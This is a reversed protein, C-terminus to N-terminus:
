KKVRSLYTITAVTSPVAAAKGHRLWKSVTLMTVFPVALVYALVAGGTLAVATLTHATSGPEPLAVCLWAFLPAVWSYWTTIVSLVVSGGGMLVRPLTQSAQYDAEADDWEDRADEVYTHRAIVLVSAALFVVGWIWTLM